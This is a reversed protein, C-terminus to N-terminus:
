LPEVEFPLVPIFPRESHPGLVANFQLLAQWGSAGGPLEVYRGLVQLRGHGSFYWSYHASWARTVARKDVRGQTFEAGSGFHHTPIFQYDAVAWAGAANNWGSGESPQLERENLLVESIFSFRAPYDYGDAYGPNVYFRFDFAQGVTNLQGEPDNKGTMAAAGLQLALWSSEFGYYLKGSYAKASTAAGNFPVADQGQWVGASIGFRHRAAVTFLRGVTIAPERLQDEGMFEAVPLPLNFQPREPEHVTNLYDYENRYKGIKLQFGLPLEARIVAEEIDFPGGDPRTLFMFAYLWPRIDAELALEAERLRIDWRHEDPSVNQFSGTVNLNGGLLIHPGHPHGIELGREVAPGPEPAKPVLGKPPGSVVVPPAPPGHEAKGADSTDAPELRRELEQLRRANDAEARRLAELQRKLGALDEEDEHAVAPAALLAVALWIAFRVTPLTSWGRATM